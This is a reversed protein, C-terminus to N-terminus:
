KTYIKKKDYVTRTTLSTFSRPWVNLLTRVSCVSVIYSRSQKKKWIYVNELKVKQRTCLTCLNRSKRIFVTSIVGADSSKSSSEFRKRPRGSASRQSRLLRYTSKANWWYALRPKVIPGLRVKVIPCCGTTTGYSVREIGGGERERETLRFELKRNKGYYPM